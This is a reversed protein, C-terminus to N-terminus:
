FAVFRAFCQPPIAIQAAVATHRVRAEPQAQLTENGVDGAHGVNAINDRKRACRTIRWELGPLEGIDARWHRPWTHRYTSMSASLPTERIVHSEASYYGPNFEAADVLHTLASLCADFRAM